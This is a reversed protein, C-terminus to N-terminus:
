RASLSVFFDNMQERRLECNAPTGPPLFFYERFEPSPPQPLLASLGGSQVNESSVPFKVPFKAFFAV